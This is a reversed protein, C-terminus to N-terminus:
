GAAGVREGARSLPENGLILDAAKEAIMVTPAHTNGRTIQPMVSADAVRLGEVGRVRLEPDVVADAGAGMACTGVPHYLLETRRRADAALEDDSTGVAPGPYIERGVAAALPETAALERAVKMGAVMAAIDADEVLHNGILKPKAAPDASRLTLEGRAKPEVLVPGITLAHGDFEEFGNDAFYAPALHFQLDPPGDGGGSRTFLFAEAVSSTLPGRRRLLWDLLAAPKEGDALSGAIASEWICVCFPHDQLNAGVGPLEIAPEIGAAELKGREGIGALMLLQPSGVAGAALIVEKRARVTAAPARGALKVGRVREGDLELGLATVGTAIELNPLGAAPRLFADATSWRRGNRQTVEVLSVGSPDGDNYDGDDPYGAARCAGVMLDTLKRPSRPPAVNLLGGYGHTPSAGAEHHESRIFYPLVDDWGWGACGHEDRWGDYDIRHGRVYLMANMSSSGGLTKGRPVFLERGDCGPEPGTAFDWDLKTRFQQPFAAPIKIKPSRDRGGAEILLVEAGASALRNALVCGASGAGVIVYDYDSM